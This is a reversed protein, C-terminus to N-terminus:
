PLEKAFPQLYDFYLRGILKDGLKTYHMFEYFYPKKNPLENVKKELDFLLLNNEKALRRIEPNLVRRNYSFFDNLEFIIHCNSPSKMYHDEFDDPVTTIGVAMGQEKALQIIETLNKRFYWPDFDDMHSYQGIPQLIKDRAWEKKEIISGMDGQKLSLIPMKQLVRGKTEDLASAIRKLKEERKKRFTDMHASFWPGLDIVTQEGTLGILYHKLALNQEETIITCRGLDNWEPGYILLDLDLPLVRHKFRELINGSDAGVVGGNIIELKTKKGNKNVYDDLLHQVQLPYDIGGNVGFTTSGGLFMIRFTNKKKKVSINEGKFGLSNIKLDGYKFNNLLCPTDPGCYDPDSITYAYSSFSFTNNRQYDLVKKSAINNATYISGMFIGAIFSSFAIKKIISLKYRRNVSLYDKISHGIKNLRALSEDLGVLNRKRTSVINGESDVIEELM